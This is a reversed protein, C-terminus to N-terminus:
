NLNAANLTIHIQCAQVISMDDTSSDKDAPCFSLFHSALVGRSVPFGVGLQMSAYQSQYFSRKAFLGIDSLAARCGRSADSYYQRSRPRIGKSTQMNMEIFSSRSGQEAM